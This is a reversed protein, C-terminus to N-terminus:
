KEEGKQEDPVLKGAGALLGGGIVTLVTAAHAKQLLRVLWPMDKFDGASIGVQGLLDMMSTSVWDGTKFLHYLEIAFVVGACLLIAIAVLLGTLGIAKVVRHGSRGEVDDQRPQENMVEGGCMAGISVKDGAVLRGGLGVETAAKEIQRSGFQQDGL